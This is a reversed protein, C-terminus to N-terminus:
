SQEFVGEIASLIKDFNYESIKEAAAKGMQAIREPQKLFFNICACLEAESGSTFVKGTHINIVDAACGCKNSVIAPRGCAMAENVALGWTEGPGKSPLVLVNILRYIVPMVSQNQFDMFHIRRDQKAINKLQKEMHGNGIFLLRANDDAIKLFAQLLLMPDKKEELKGTFGFVIHEKLFGLNEKLRQLMASQVDNILQFRQNDIAHPAFILKADSLGMGKFYERNRKGVYLAFDVYRYVWTLFLKRILGKYTGKEDMLTSDGRFFVPVKRHFYRLCKLHARFAWGFVLVADPNYEEIAPILHPTIIGNLHHSGPDTSTNEVFTYDYGELLPIDWSVKRRFGPDYQPAEQAQSWTYFVKITISSSSALKKFLPANYQIPHTTVIALKKNRIIM